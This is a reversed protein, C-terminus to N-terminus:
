KRTKLSQKQNMNGHTKKCACPADYSVYMGSTIFARTAPSLPHVHASAQSQYRLPQLLHCVVAHCWEEVWGAVVGGGGGGGGGGGNKCSVDPEEAYLWREAEVAKTKGGM